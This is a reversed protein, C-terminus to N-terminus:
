YTVCFEAKKARPASPSVAEKGTTSADFHVNRSSRQTGNKEQASAFAQCDISPHPASKSNPTPYDFAIISVFATAAIIVTIALGSRAFAFPGGAQPPVSAKPAELFRHADKRTNSERIVLVRAAERSSSVGLKRRAQRLRDSVASASISLEFAASKIDHGRALLWLVERERETLKGIDHAIL